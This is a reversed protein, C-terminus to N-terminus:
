PRNRAFYPQVSTDRKEASPIGATLRPGPSGLRACRTSSRTGTAWIASTVSRRLAYRDQSHETPTRVGTLMLYHMPTATSAVM